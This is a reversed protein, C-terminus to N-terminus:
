VVEVFAVVDDEAVPLALANLEARTFYYLRTAVGFDELTPANDNQKGKDLLYFDGEPCRADKVRYLLPWGKVLKIGQRIVVGSADRLDMYWAGPRSLWRLRIGYTVGEIACRYSQAPVGINIPMRLM